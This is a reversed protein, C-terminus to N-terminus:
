MVLFFMLCYRFFLFVGVVGVFVVVLFVGVMVELLCELFCMGIVCRCLVIVFWRNFVFFEVVINVVNLLIFM